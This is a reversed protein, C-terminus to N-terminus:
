TGASSKKCDMWGDVGKYFCYAASIKLLAPILFPLFGVWFATFPDLFLCLAATGVALILLENAILAVLPRKSLFLQGSFFASLAFGLLYGMRPTFIWLPNALGGALVPLGATAQAIYALVAFLALQPGMTMALLAVALSQLSVVITTYPLPIAVQSMLALFLSGFLVSLFQGIYTKKCCQLALEM